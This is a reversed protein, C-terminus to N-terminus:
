IATYVGAGKHRIWLMAAIQVGFKLVQEVPVAGQQLRDSLTEGDIYEM